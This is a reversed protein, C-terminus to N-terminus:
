KQRNKAKLKRKMKKQKKRLKENKIRNEEEKQIQSLRALIKKIVVDDTEGLVINLDKLLECQDMVFEFLVDEERAQKFANSYNKDIYDYISLERELIEPTVSDNEMLKDKYEDRSLGGIFPSFRMLNRDIFVSESM